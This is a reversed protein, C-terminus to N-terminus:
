VQGISLYCIYVMGLGMSGRVGEEGCTDHQKKKIMASSQMSQHPYAGSKLAAEYARYISLITM